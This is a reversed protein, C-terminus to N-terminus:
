PGTPPTSPTSSACAQVATPSAPSARTKPTCSRAKPMGGYPNALKAFGTQVIDFQEQARVLWTNMRDITEPRVPGEHGDREAADSLEFTMRAVAQASNCAGGIVMATGAGTSLLAAKATLDLRAILSRRIDRPGLPADAAPYNTRTYIDALAEQTQAPMTSAWYDCMATLLGLYLVADETSPTEPLPMDADPNLAHVAAHLRHALDEPSTPDSM